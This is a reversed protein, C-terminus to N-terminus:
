DEDEVEDPEAGKGSAKGLMSIGVHQGIHASLEAGDEKGFVHPEGHERFGGLGDSHEHFHKVVAGGNAAPSVELHHFKGIKPVRSKAAGYSAM